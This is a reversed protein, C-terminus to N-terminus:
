HLIGTGNGETGLSSLEYLSEPESDVARGAIIVNYRHPINQSNYCVTANFAAAGGTTQAVIWPGDYRFTLDQFNKPIQILSPKQAKTDYVPSLGNLTSGSSILMVYNFGYARGSLPNKAGNQVPTLIKGSERSGSTELIVAAMAAAVFGIQFGMLVRIVASCITVLRTPWDDFVIADWHESRPYRKRAKEAGQWLFVLLAVSILIAATGAVLIVRGPLSIRRWWQRIRQPRPPVVFKNSAELAKRPHRLEM